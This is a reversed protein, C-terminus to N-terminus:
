LSHSHTGKISCQPPLLPGRRVIYPVIIVIVSGVPGYIHCAATPTYNPYLTTCISTCIDRKGVGAEGVLGEMNNMSELSNRTPHLFRYGNRGVSPEFGEKWRREEGM